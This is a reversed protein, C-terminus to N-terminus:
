IAETLTLEGGNVMCWAWLTKGAVPKLILKENIRMEIGDDGNVPDQSTDDVEAVFILRQAVNATNQVLYRQNDILTMATCLNVPTRDIRTGRTAM